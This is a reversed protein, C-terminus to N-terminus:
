PREAARLAAVQEISLCTAQAIQADSLVGLAILNRATERAAERRGQQEGKQLGIQEGKQLGLQEGRQLGIREGEERGEERAEKLLTAEDHLARERVFALRRAEEDASLERVRNLAQQIPAHEVQAMTQEEQWHEFFTIWAGLRTQRSAPASAPAPPQDASPQLKPASAQTRAAPAGAELVLGLGLRDAKKLEILNLQLVNGLTVAPQREDRMEFRWVAQAQQAPGHDFLDFDLLHIGVAARLATYDEGAELQQSLMRALYFLGRQHWAGYRRVQIEVNYGHGAADRALVDLIIYKGRLEEPRIDPNLVEVSQIEPLDPRLDNILAVLLDPAEGFLRKFVYDNKPDLLDDHLDTTM